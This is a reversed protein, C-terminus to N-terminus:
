TASEILQKRSALTYRQYSCPYTCPYLQTPFLRQRENNVKIIIIYFWIPAISTSRHPLTNYQMYTMYANSSLGPQTRYSNGITMVHM